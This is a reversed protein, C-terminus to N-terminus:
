RKHAAWAQCPCASAELPCIEATAALTLSSSEACAEEVVSSAMTGSIASTAAAWTVRWPYYGWLLTVATAMSGVKLPSSRTNCPLQHTAHPEHTALTPTSMEKLMLQVISVNDEPPAKERMRLNSVQGASRNDRRRHVIFVSM